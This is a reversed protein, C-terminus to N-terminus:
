GQLRKFAKEGFLPLSVENYFKREFWGILRRVEARAYPDKGLMSEAAHTEDLFESIAQADALVEREKGETIVLVPLESSPNLALLEATPEWPKEIVFECAVGKEALALRVRRSSPDLPHHHLTYSLSGSV